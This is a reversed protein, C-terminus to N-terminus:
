ILFCYTMKNALMINIYDKYIVSKISASRISPGCYM